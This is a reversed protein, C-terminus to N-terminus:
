STTNELITHNKFIGVLKQTFEKFTKEEDLLNSAIELNKLSMDELKEMSLDMADRISKSLDLYSFTKLLFGSESTIIDSAVGTPFSIPIIGYHVARMLTGPGADDTTSNIYFHASRMEKEYENSALFEVTQFEIFQLEKRIKTADLGILKVRIRKAYEPYHKDLDQIADLFIPLGKRYESIFSASWLLEFKKLSDFKQHIEDTSIQKLPFGIMQKQISRYPIQSEEVLKQQWTSSAIIHLPINKFLEKKQKLTKFSIDDPKVSELQPCTGCGRNYRNCGLTFHCGGSIIANDSMYVVIPVGYTEYLRVIQETTLFQSYWLLIFLDPKQPIAAHLNEWNVANESTTSYFLNKMGASMAKQVKEQSYWRDTCIEFDESKNGFRYLLSTNLGATNLKSVIAKANAGAGGFLYTSFLVINM